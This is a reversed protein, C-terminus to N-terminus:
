SIAIQYLRTRSPTSGQFFVQSKPHKEFFNLIANAVTVLVIDRDQNDSIVLDDIEDSNDRKDGFELNYLNKYGKIKMKSFIVCKLISGKPGKSIFEFQTKTANSTLAYKELRM